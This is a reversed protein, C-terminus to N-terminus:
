SLLFNLFFLLSKPKQRVSLEDDDYEDEEANLDDDDSEETRTKKIKNIREISEHDRFFFM